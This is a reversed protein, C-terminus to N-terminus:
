EKELIEKLPIAQFTMQAQSGEYLIGVTKSDIMTLCSYGWGSGSDLLVGENWSNAVDKSGKITMNVRSGTHAPNSFLFTKDNVKIFSAMCVPEILASRSTHHDEWTKGMDKTILVARSGKRNDRSNLMLVGPEIEVVQAETTNSRAAEGIQWTKGKDKSYIITACPVNDGGLYQFAFVLTGDEMTIGMGPGQLLVGWAPDKIQPTINIPESWTAGDNTSKAILVQAAQEEPLMANKKSGWFNRQGGIGHAWLGILYLDGTKDDILIAPDGVGNQSDPLSGYGRMDIAIQMPQWTQGGDFSRSVGVQVDEQLDVSSNRRIDYVAVLTGKKTTVLGPIRYASVGDDGASRVSVGVRRAKSEGTYSMPVSEGNITAATIKLSLKEKLPTKPDLTVGVWFYNNDGFLKQDVNLTMKKSVSNIEAKKIAYTPKEFNRSYHNGGALYHTGTYYVKVSKVYKTNDLTLKLSELVQNAETPKIKLDFYINNPENIMLPYTPEKVFLTDVVQARLSLALSLMLSVFLLKKM